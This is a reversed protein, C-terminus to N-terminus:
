GTLHGFKGGLLSAKELGLRMCETIEGAQRGPRFGTAEPGLPDALDELFCALIGGFWKQLCSSLSIPRCDKVEEPRHVKPILRVIVEAWQKVPGRHSVKANIRDNFAERFTDVLRVPFSALCRWTIGDAGPGGDLSNSHKARTQLMMWLPIDLDPERKWQRDPRILALRERQKEILGRRMEVDL